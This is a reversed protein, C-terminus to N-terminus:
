WFTSILHSLEQGRSLHCGQMLDRRVTPFGKRQEMDKDSVRQLARQLGMKVRTCEMWVRVKM